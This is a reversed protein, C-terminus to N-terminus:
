DLSKRHDVEDATGRTSTVRLWRYLMLLELAKGSQSIHFLKAVQRNICGSFNGVSALELALLPSPNSLERAMESRLAARNLCNALRNLGLM